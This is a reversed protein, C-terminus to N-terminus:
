QTYGVLVSLPFFCQFSFVIFVNFILLSCLTEMDTVYVVTHLLAATSVTYLVSGEEPKCGSEWRLGTM